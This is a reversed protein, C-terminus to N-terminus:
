TILLETVEAKSFANEMGGSAVVMMRTTRAAIIHEKKSSASIMRMFKVGAAVTTKGSATTGELVDVDVNETTNCFDIYKESLPFAEDENM